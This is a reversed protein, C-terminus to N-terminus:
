KKLRKFKEEDVTIVAQEKNDNTTLHIIFTLKRKLFKNDFLLEEEAKQHVNLIHKVAFTKHM